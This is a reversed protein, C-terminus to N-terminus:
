ESFKVTPTKKLEERSEDAQFLTLQKFGLPAALLNAPFMQIYTNFETTASNFFRRAAALKNEIDSMETQLHLFNQNAKLDPYNEAVAFISKLAGALMNDAAIKDDPNGANLFSTRAKTVNELTGAEHKMYGKVTEILQPILDFRQKLQVDIDSFSQNRKNRLAVMGNYKIMIYIAPLVVILAIIILLTTM